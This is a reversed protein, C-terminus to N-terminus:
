ALAHPEELTLLRRLVKGILSKPLDSRFLVRGPVKYPALQQKCFERIEDATAQMGARLVVFAVAIEGSRDDPFSRVGVQAVAPHQAIAEEVERPWVQM